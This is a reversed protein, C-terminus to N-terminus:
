SQIQVQADTTTGLVSSGEMVVDAERPFDHEFSITTSQTAAKARFEITAATFSDSAPGAQFSSGLSLNIKGTTNNYSNAFALTLTDGVTISVVELYTTNFSIYTEIGTLEQTGADVDLTVEFTDNVNVPQSPGNLTLDVSGELLLGEGGMGMGETVTQPSTKGYNTYLLSFDAMKVWGSRDFDANPNWNPMGSQTEYANGFAVFDSFDIVVSGQTIDVADGEWLTGMSLGTLDGNITVSNQLNVLNHPSYLTIYWSNGYISENFMKVDFAVVHNTGSSDTVVISGDGTSFTYSPQLTKINLNTVAQNYLKVTFPINYGSTPPRADGQLTATMPLVGVKVQDNATPGNGYGDNPTVVVKWVEGWGTYSANVTNTTLGEQLVDNKYWAYSYTVNDGDPDTSQTTISAVLNDSNKPLKPTVSIVPATPPSNAIFQQDSGYVTGDGM